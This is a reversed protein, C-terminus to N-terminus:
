VAQLQPLLIKVAAPMREPFSIRYTREVSRVADSIKRYSGSDLANRMKAAFAVAEQEM